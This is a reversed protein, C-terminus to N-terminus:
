SLGETQAGMRSSLQALGDAVDELGKRASIISEEPLDTKAGYRSAILLESLLGSAKELEKVHGVLIGLNEPNLFNLSLVRDLIEPDRIESALKLTDVRLYPVNALAPFVKEELVSAFKDALPVIENVGAITVVHEVNSRDLLECAKKVKLGMAALKFLADHYSMELDECGVKRLPTGHLVYTDQFGRIEVLNELTGDLAKKTLAKGDAILKEPAPRPTRTGDEEVDYFAGMKIWKARDPFVYTDWEEFTNSLQVPLIDPAHKSIELAVQKGLPTVAQICLQGNTDSIAAIKVPVTAIGTSPSDFVFCGTDGVRPTDQPLSEEVEIPVGAIKEQILRNDEDGVFLMRGTAKKDFDYVEPYLWGTVEKGSITMARVAGFKDLEAASEFDNVVEPDVHHTRVTHTFTQGQALKSLIHRKDHGVGLKDLFPAVAHTPLPTDIEQYGSDSATKLTFGSDTPRIQVVNVTQSAEAIKTFDEPTTPAHNYIKAVANLAAANAGLNVALQDGADIAEKVQAVSTQSITPLIEEVISHFAIKEPEDQRDVADRTITELTAIHLKDEPTLRDHEFAYVRRGERFDNVQTQQYIPEDQTITQEEQPTITKGFLATKFLIKKLNKDSMMAPQGKYILTDLPALLRKEIFIPISAKGDVIIKGLAYGSKEDKSQFSIQVDRESLMPFESFLHELIETNWESPRDSLKVYRMASKVMSKPRYWIPEEAYAQQHVTM